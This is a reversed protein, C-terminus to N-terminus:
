LKAAPEIYERAMRELRAVIEHENPPMDLALLAVEEVGADRYRELDDARIPNTYPCVALEV